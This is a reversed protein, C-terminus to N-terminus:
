FYGQKKGFGSIRFDSLKWNYIRWKFRRTIQSLKHLPSDTLPSNVAIIKFQDSTFNNLDITVARNNDKGFSKHCTIRERAAKWQPTGADQAHNFITIHSDLSFKNCRTEHTAQQKMNQQPWCSITRADAEISTPRSDSEPDSIVLVKYIPVTARKSPPHHWSSSHPCEKSTNNDM